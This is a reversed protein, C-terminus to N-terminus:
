SKRRGRSWANPPHLRLSAEKRGCKRCRLKPVLDSALAGHDRGFRVALAEVDLWASHGCRGFRRDHVDCYAIVGYDADILEGLTGTSKLHLPTRRVGAHGGAFSAQHGSGTLANKRPMQEM